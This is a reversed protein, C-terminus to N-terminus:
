GACRGSLAQAVIQAVEVATPDKPNIWDQDPDALPEFFLSGDSRNMYTRAIHQYLQMNEEALRLRTKPLIPPQEAAPQANQMVYSILVGRTREDIKMRQFTELFFISRTDLSKNIQAVSADGFHANLDAFGISSLFDAVINPQNQEKEYARVVINQRGFVKEWRDLLARYNGFQPNHKRQFSLFGEFGQAWPPDVVMKAAQSYASFWWHDHRRFYVIIKCDFDAFFERVLAVKKPLVFNESSIVCVDCRSQALESKFRKLLAKRQEEPAPQKGHDFGLTRSIEYHADGACGASPYFLGHGTLAKRENNLFHQIASTGTKNTGIHIFLKPKSEM